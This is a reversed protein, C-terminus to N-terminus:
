THHRHKKGELMAKLCSALIRVRDKNLCQMGEELIKEIDVLWAIAVTPGQTVDFNVVGVTLGPGTYSNISAGELARTM